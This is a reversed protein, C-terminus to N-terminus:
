KKTKLQEVKTFFKEHEDLVLCYYNKGSEFETYIKLPYIISQYYGNENSEYVYDTIKEPKIKAIIEDGVKISEDDIVVAVDSKKSKLKRVVKKFEKKTVYEDLNRNM